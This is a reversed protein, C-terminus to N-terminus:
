GEERLEGGSKIGMVSAVGTFVLAAIISIKGIIMFNGAWGQGFVLILYLMGSHFIAGCLFLISLLAKFNSPIALSLLVLGAVINLLAELNGHAHVASGVLGAKKSAQLYDMIGTVAPAIKEEEGARVQEVVAATEKMVENVAGKGPLLLVPGLLATCAFYFFGFVINIKGNM